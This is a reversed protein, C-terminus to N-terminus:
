RRRSVAPTPSQRRRSSARRPKACDRARRRAGHRRRSAGARGRVAHAGARPSVRRRHRTPHLPARQRDEGNRHPASRHRRSQRGREIVAKLRGPADPMTMLSGHSVVPNAGIILLYNPAISIPFPCPPLFRAARVDPRDPCNRRCPTSRRQISFAAAASRARAAGPLLPIRLDHVIPNGLYMGIANAGYQERIALMRSAMEAYADDWTIEEWGNATRRVPARLRDRITTCSRSGTRRPASTAARSRIKRTAACRSSRTARRGRRRAGCTAECFPCVRNVIRHDSM